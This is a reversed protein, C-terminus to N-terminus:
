APPPPPRSRLTLNWSEGSAVVKQVAYTGFILPISENTVMLEDIIDGLRLFASVQGSAAAVSGDVIMEATVTASALGPALHFTLRDDM